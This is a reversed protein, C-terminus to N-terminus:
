NASIFTEQQLVPHAARETNSRAFDQLRIENILLLRTEYLNMNEQLTILFKKRRGKQLTM